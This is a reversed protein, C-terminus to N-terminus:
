WGIQSVFPLSPRQMSGGTASEHRGGAQANITAGDSELWDVQLEQPEDAADDEVFQTAM